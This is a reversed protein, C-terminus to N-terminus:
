HSATQLSEAVAASGREARPQHMRAILEVYDPHRYGIRDLDSILGLLAEGRGLRFYAWALTTRLHPDHSQTDGGILDVVRQWAQASEDSRGGADLLEGDLREADALMEVIRQEDPHEARLKEM